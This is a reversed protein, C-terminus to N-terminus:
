FLAIGSSHVSADRLGWGPPHWPECSAMFKGWRAAPAKDGEGNRESEQKSVLVAGQAKLFGVEPSVGDEPATSLVSVSLVLNRPM